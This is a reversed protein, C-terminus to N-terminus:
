EELRYRKAFSKVKIFSGKRIEELKDLYEKRAEPEVEIISQMFMSVQKSMSLGRENCFRSFKDYIDEQVNFSKIVM